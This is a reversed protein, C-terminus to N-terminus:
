RLPDKTFQTTRWCLPCRFVESSGEVSCWELVTDLEADAKTWQKSVGSFRDTTQSSFGEIVWEKGRAFDLDHGSQMTVVCSVEKSMSRQGRFAVERQFWFLATEPMRDHGHVPAGPDLCRENRHGTSQKTQGISTWSDPGKRGPRRKLWERAKASNTKLADIAGVSIGDANGIQRDHQGVIAYYAKRLATENTEQNGPQLAEDRDQVQKM